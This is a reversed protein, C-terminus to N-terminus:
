ARVELTACKPGGGAKRLESLDVPVPEFGAAALAGALHDAGEPLVVHRGDSVANLGLVAADAATAEIADPFLRRVVAQSAPSFASPLWAVTRDDLVAMATDLHYYSPDVLELGVVERGFVRAVEDHVSPDSRFGHGALIREGVALLDGEGEVTRTPEVYGRLEGAAVREEFWRAYAPGEARRQEHAFRAGYAIGDVVLGGNAAFVMDPLGPVPEIRVVRHGLREYTAALAQWQTLALAVDVPQDPHMWPNIAYTVAFHIPECMLYTRASARRTLTDPTPALATMADVTRVPTPPSLAAVNGLEIFRQTTGGRCAVIKRTSAMSRAM